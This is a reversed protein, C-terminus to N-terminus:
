TMGEDGDLNEHSPQNSGDRLADIDSAHAGKEQMTAVGVM